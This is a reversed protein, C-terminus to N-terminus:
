RNPIFPTSRKCAFCYFTGENVKAPCSETGCRGCKGWLAARPAPPPPAEVESHEAAAPRARRRVPPAPPREVEADEDDDGPECNPCRDRRSVLNSDDALDWYDHLYFNGSIADCAPCINALYSSQVTHSFRVELKAHAARAAAIEAENLDGPSLAMGEEGGFAIKM